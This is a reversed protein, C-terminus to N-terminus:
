MPRGVPRNRSSLRYTILKKMMRGIKADTTAIM